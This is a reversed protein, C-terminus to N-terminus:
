GNSMEIIENVKKTVGKPVDDGISMRELNAIFDLDPAKQTTKIQEIFSELEKNREKEQETHELDFVVGAPAVKLAHTDLTRKLTDFIVVTPRHSIQDSNSRMLSGCNVLYRGSHDDIFFTHNDGTVILDFKHKRLLHSSRDYEEQGEWAKKGGIVMRHMVLINMADPDQIDPIDEGWSSGYIDVEGGKEKLGLFRLPETGLITVLGSAELVGLPTNERKNHHYRQDHQGLVVLWPRKKHVSAARGILWLPPTSTDFCDGPQLIFDCDHKDALGGVQELKNFLAAVYDDRRSKPTSARYHLDGMALFKM